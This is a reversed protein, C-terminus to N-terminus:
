RAVNSEGIFISSVICKMNKYFVVSRSSDLLIQNVLIPCRCSLKHNKLTQMCKLFLHMLILDVAASLQPGLTLRARTDDACPLAGSNVPWLEGVTLEGVMAGVDNSEKRGEAHM